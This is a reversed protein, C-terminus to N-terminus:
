ARLLRLGIRGRSVGRAHLDGGEVYGCRILDLEEATPPQRTKRTPSREALAAKTLVRESPSLTTLDDARSTIIM